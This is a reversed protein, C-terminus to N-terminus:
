AISVYPATCITSGLSNSGSPNTTVTAPIPAGVTSMSFGGAPGSNTPAASASAFYRPFSGTAIMGISTPPRLVSMGSAAAASIPRGTISASEIRRANGCISIVVKVKAPIVADGIDITSM